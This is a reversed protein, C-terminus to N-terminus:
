HDHQSLSRILLDSPKGYHLAESSIMESVVVKAGFEIYLERLPLDTLSAMPAPILKINSFM